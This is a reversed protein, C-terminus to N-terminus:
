RSSLVDIVGKIGEVFPVLGEIIVTLSLGSSLTNADSGLESVEYETNEGSVGTDMGLLLVLLVLPFGGSLYPFIIGKISYNIHSRM